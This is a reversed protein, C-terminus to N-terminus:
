ISLHEPEVPQDPYSLSRESHPAFFYAELKGERNWIYGVITGRESTTGDFSQYEYTYVVEDGLAYKPTEYITKAIASLM